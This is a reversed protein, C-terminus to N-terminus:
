ESLVESRQGLWRGTERKVGERQLAQILVRDSEGVHTAMEEPGMLSRGNLANQRDGAEQSLGQRPPVLNSAAPFLLPHSLSRSVDPRADSPAETVGQRGSGKLLFVPTVLLTSAM